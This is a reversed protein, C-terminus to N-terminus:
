CTLNQTRHKGANNITQNHQSAERMFGDYECNEPIVRNCYKEQAVSSIRQGLWSHAPYLIDGDPFGDIISKVSSFLTLTNFVGKVFPAYDDVRSQLRDIVAAKRTFNDAVIYSLSRSKDDGSPSLFLSM